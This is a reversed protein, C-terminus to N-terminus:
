LLNQTRVFVMAYNFVLATTTDGQAASNNKNLDEKSFQAFSVLLSIVHMSVQMSKRDYKGTIM